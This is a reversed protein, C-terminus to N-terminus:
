TLSPGVDKDFHLFVRFVFVGLFLWFLHFDISSGTSRWSFINDPLLLLLFQFGIWWFSSFRRSFSLFLSFHKITLYRIFILTKFM